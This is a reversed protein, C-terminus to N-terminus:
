LLKTEFSEILFSCYHIAFLFWGLPCSKKDCCLKNRGNCCVKHGEHMIECCLQLIVSSIKLVTGSMELKASVIARNLTAKCM